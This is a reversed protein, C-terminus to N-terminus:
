TGTLVYKCARGFLWIGISVGFVALVAVLESSTFLEYFAAFFYFAAVASGLWYLVNGLRAIM